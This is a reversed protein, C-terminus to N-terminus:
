SRNGLGGAFIVVGVAYVLYHVNRIRSHKTVGKKLSNAITKPPLLYNLKIPNTNTPPPQCPCVLKGMIKATGLHLM